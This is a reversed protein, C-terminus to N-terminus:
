FEDRNYLMKHKAVFLGDRMELMDKISGWFSLISLRTM